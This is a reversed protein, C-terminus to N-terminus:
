NLSKISVIELTIGEKVAFSKVQNMGMRDEKCHLLVKSTVRKMRECKFSTKKNNAPGDWSTKGSGWMGNSPLPTTYKKYM